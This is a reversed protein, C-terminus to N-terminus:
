DGTNDWGENTEQRDVKCNTYRSSDVQDQLSSNFDSFAGDEDSDLSRQVIQWSKNVSM